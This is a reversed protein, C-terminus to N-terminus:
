IQIDSDDTRNVGRDSQRRSCCFHGFKGFDFGHPSTNEADNTRANGIYFADLALSPGDRDHRPDIIEAPSSYTAVDSGDPTNTFAHDHM